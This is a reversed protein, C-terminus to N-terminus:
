AQIQGFGKWTGLMGAGSSPSTCIWGMYGNAAPTSNEVIDGQHDDGVAFAASPAATGQRRIRWRQPDAVNDRFFTARRAIDYIKGTVFPAVGKGGMSTTTYDAVFSTNVVNYYGTYPQIATGFQGTIAVNRIPANDWSCSIFHTLGTSKTINPNIIRYDTNKGVALGNYNEHKVLAGTAGEVYGGEILVVGGDVLNGAVYYQTFGVVNNDRLHLYEVNGGICFNVGAATATPDATFSNGEVMIRAYNASTRGVFGGGTNVANMTRTGRASYPRLRFQNNKIHATLKRGPAADFQVGVTCDEFVNADNIVNYSDGLMAARLMGLNYRKGYNHAVIGNFGHTEICTGVVDYNTNIFRNGQVRYTDAEIYITSHDSLNTNGTISSAMDYFHNDLVEVDMAGLYFAVCQYGSTSLVHLGQVSWKKGCNTVVVHTQAASGYSNKAAVLNNAGNCDVTFGRLNFNEVTGVSWAWFIQYGKAYQKASDGNIVGDAVKLVAGRGGKITVNPAAKFWYRYASVDASPDSILAAEDLLYVGDPIFLTGGGRSVLYAMAARMATVCSTSDGKAGFWQVNVAGDFVRDWAFQGVIVTGNNDVATAEGILRRRFPGAIGVGTVYVSKRPGRYARLAAYDPLQLSDLSQAVTEGGNGVLSAGSSDALDAGVVGEILRFKAAEFTGSTTFPLEAAKPAYVHGGYEVTQTRTTLKIGAVYDVPPAYGLSSLVTNAAAEIKAVLSGLFGDATAQVASAASSILGAITRKTNGLRDVTTPANSTAVEAIHDLDKKGNNLDHINLAAM